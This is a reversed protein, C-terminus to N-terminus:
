KKVAKLEEDKNVIEELIVEKRKDFESRTENQELKAELAKKKEFHLEEQM